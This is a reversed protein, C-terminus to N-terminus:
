FSRLFGFDVRTRRYDYLSINARSRSHIIRLLPSFGAVTLNKFVAGITLDLRRDRRIKGFLFLPEVGSTHTYDAQGFLTGARNSRALFLGVGFQRLSEPRVRADLSAYRLSLRAGGSAGLAQSYDFAGSTRWGDQGSNRMVDQRVRSGSLELQARRSLSKTWNISAGAGQSYPNGGYWRREHLLAVRVRGFSAQLEPGGDVTLQVDNFRAKDFLDARGGARAIFDAGLVSSRIFAQGGLSFGVGSQRRANADLEFPAIITDVYQSSTARNVNSDPGGSLELSLGRRKNAQLGSSFRRVTQEVEPPLGNAEAKAVEARATASQGQAALLRALELRARNASPQESLLERLTRVAGAIDGMKEQLAALRFRAEARLEPHKDQTLAQLVSAAGAIDGEKFLRDALAFLQAATAQVCGTASLCDKQRADTSAGLTLALAAAFALM